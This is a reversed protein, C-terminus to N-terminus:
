TSHINTYKRNTCATGLGCFDCAPIPGVQCGARSPVQLQAAAQLPQPGRAVKHDEVVTVAVLWHHLGAALKCHAQIYLDAHVHVCTIIYVQSPAARYEKRSVGGYM